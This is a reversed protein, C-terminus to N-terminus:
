ISTDRIASALEDLKDRPAMEDRYGEPFQFGFVDGKNRPIVHFHLHFVDQGAGSGNAAATLIGDPKLLLNVKRALEALRKSLHSLVELDVDFMNVYHKKPIVLCHGERVPFIDMFAMVVDDEFVVSAPIEGGVIKCFICDTEKSM